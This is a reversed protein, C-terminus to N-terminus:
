KGCELARRYVENLQDLKRDWNFDNARGIAGHSLQTREEEHRYLHAIIEALRKKMAAPSVAPIKYGCTDNVVEAFGFLDPCVIPMGFSLAELTVTATLDYMSTICFLHKGSMIEFAKARDNQGHWTCNADVGLRAALQRWQGTRPGSGLIHLHYKVDPPVQALAELLINLAKRPIHLGSWVLQLPEDPRRSAPAVRSPDLVSGIECIVTSDKGWRKLALLRTSPTASILEARKRQAALRPRILFRRHCVNILNRFCFYLGGYWGLAPLMRWPTNDMGGIPGWVFPLDTIKWLFGPERFGTMNLQHILDFPIEKQLKLALQYARKQWQRYFWYYSPPWLKSWFPRPSRPIFFFHLNRFLEPDEAAKRRIDEEFEVKETIVWLEHQRAMAAIFGWSVGPESGHYPSCAYASVLIKLRRKEMFNGSENIVADCNM